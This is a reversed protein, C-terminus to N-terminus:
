RAPPRRLWKWTDILVGAAVSAGVALGFLRLIGGTHVLSSGVQDWNVTQTAPPAGRGPMGSAPPPGHHSHPTHHLASAHETHIDIDSM